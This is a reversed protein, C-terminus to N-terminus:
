TRCEQISINESPSSYMVKRKKSQMSKDHRSVKLHLGKIYMVSIAKCGSTIQFISLATGLASLDGKFVSKSLLVHHFLSGSSQMINVSLVYCTECSRFIIGNSHDCKLM